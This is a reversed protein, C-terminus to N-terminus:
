VDRSLRWWLSKGQAYRIVCICVAASVTVRSNKETASVMMHYRFPCGSHLEPWNKSPMFTSMHTWIKEDKLLLQFNQNKLVILQLHTESGQSPWVIQRTYSCHAPYPLTDPLPDRAPTSLSTGLQNLTKSALLLSDWFPSLSKSTGMLAGPALHFVSIPTLSLCPDKDKQDIVQTIVPLSLIPLLKLPPVSALHCCFFFSQCPFFISVALISKSYYLLSSLLPCLILYPNQKLSTFSCLQAHKQASSFRDSSLPTVLQYVLICPFPTLSVPSLTSKQYNSADNEWIPSLRYTRLHPFTDIIPFFCM